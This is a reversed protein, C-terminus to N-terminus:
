NLEAYEREFKKLTVQAVALQEYKNKFTEYDTEKGSSRFENYALKAAADYPISVDIKGVKKAAPAATAGNAKAGGRKRAVAFGGAGLISAAIGGAVSPDMQTITDMVDSGIMIMHTKVATRSPVQSVSTFAQAGLFLSLVVVSRMM